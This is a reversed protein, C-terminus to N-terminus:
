LHLRIHKVKFTCSSSRLSIRSGSTLSNIVVNCRVKATLKVLKWSGFKVKIPVDGKVALPIFGKEQQQQLDTILGGDLKTEGNLIVDVVTTNRHGQYFVPFEGACLSTGNYWASLSSGDEYYIGIRRNPNRGTVTVNFTAHATLNADVSFDSITLRDVSYKPIKPRFVLYLIGVIAGILLILLVLALLSWCLCRFCRSRKKKSPPQLPPLRDTAGSKQSRSFADLAVPASPPPSEVDAPHIRQHDGM